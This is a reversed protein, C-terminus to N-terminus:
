DAKDSKYYINFISMYDNLENNTFRYGVNQLYEKLSYMGKEELSLLLCNKLGTETYKSRNPLLITHFIDVICEKCDAVLEKRIIPTISYIEKALKIIIDKNNYRYYTSYKHQESEVTAKYISNNTFDLKNKSSVFISFSIIAYSFRVKKLIENNYLKQPTVIYIEAEPDYEDMSITRGPFCDEVLTKIKDAFDDYKQIIVVLPLRNELAAYVLASKLMYPASTSEVLLCRGNRDYLFEPVETNIKDIDELNPYRRQNALKVIDDSVVTKGVKSFALLRRAISPDLPLKVRQYM